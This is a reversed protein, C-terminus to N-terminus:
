AGRAGGGVAVRAQRAGRGGIRKRWREIGIEAVVAFPNRVSKSQGGFIGFQEHDAFVKGALVRLSDNGIGLGIRALEIDAHRSPSPIRCRSGNRRLEAIPM